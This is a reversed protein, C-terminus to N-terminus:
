YRLPAPDLEFLSLCRVVMGVLTKIRNKDGLDLVAGDAFGMKAYLQRVDKDIPNNLIRHYGSAFLHIASLGFLALVVINYRGGRKKGYDDQSANRGPALIFTVYIDPGLFLLQVRLPRLGKDDIGELRFLPGPPEIHEEFDEAAEKDWIIPTATVKSIGYNKPACAALNEELTQRVAEVVLAPEVPTTPPKISGHRSLVAAAFLSYPTPKSM